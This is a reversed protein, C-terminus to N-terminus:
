WELAWLRWLWGLKPLMAEGIPIGGWPGMLPSPGVGPKKSAPVLPGGWDDVCGAMPEDLLVNGWSSLAWSRWIRALKVPTPGSPAAKGDWGM